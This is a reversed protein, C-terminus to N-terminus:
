ADLGRGVGDFLFPNHTEVFNFNIKWVFDAKKLCGDWWDKAIGRAGAMNGPWEWTPSSNGPGPICFGKEWVHRSVIVSSSKVYTPPPFFFQLAGALPPCAPSQAPMPHVPLCRWLVPARTGSSWWFAFSGHQVVAPASPVKKFQGEKWMVKLCLMARQKTFHRWLLFINKDGTFIVCIILTSDNWIVGESNHQPPCGYLSKDPLVIPSYDSNNDGLWSTISRVKFSAHVCGKLLCDAFLKLKSNRM